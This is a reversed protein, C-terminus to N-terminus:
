KAKVNKLYLIWYIPNLFISILILVVFALSLFKYDIYYGRNKLANDFIFLIDDFTMTKLGDCIIYIWHLLTFTISGLYLATIM